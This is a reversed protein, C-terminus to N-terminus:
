TDEQEQRYLMNMQQYIAAQEDTMSKKQWRPTDLDQDKMAQGTEQHNTAESSLMKHRSEGNLQDIVGAKDKDDMFQSFGVRVKSKAVLEQHQDMFSAFTQKSLDDEDLGADRHGINLTSFPIKDTGENQGKRSSLYQSSFVQTPSAILRKVREQEQDLDAVCWHSLKMRRSEAAKGTLQQLEIM